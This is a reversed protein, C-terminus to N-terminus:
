PLSLRRVGTSFNFQFKGALNMGPQQQGRGVNTKGVRQSIAIPHKAGAGQNGTQGPSGQRRRRFIRQCCCHSLGCLIGQLLKFIVKRRGNRHTFLNGTTAPDQPRLRNARGPGVILIAETGYLDLSRNFPQVRRRAAGQDM